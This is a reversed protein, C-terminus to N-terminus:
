RSPLAALVWRTQQGTFTVDAARNITNPTGFVTTHPVFDMTCPKPSSTSGGTTSVTLEVQNKGTLRYRTAVPPCTSSGYLTVSFQDGGKLWMSYPAGGASSEPPTMGKPEGRYDTLPHTSNQACGTLALAALCVVGAAFVLRSHRSSM